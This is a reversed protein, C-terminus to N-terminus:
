WIGCPSYHINLTRNVYALGTRCKGIYDQLVEARFHWDEALDMPFNGHSQSAPGIGAGKKYLPYGFFFHYQNNCACNDDNANIQWTRELSKM